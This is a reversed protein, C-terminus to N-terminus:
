PLMCSISPVAQCRKKSAGAWAKSQVQLLLTQTLPEFGDAQASISVRWPGVMYLQFQAIYNGQGVNRVRIQKAGMIMNTMWASPIVQAQDIPLGQSDTLHLELATIGSAVPAYDIRIQLTAPTHVRVNAAVFLVGMCTVVLLCWFFPRVRM